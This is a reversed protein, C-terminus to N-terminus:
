PFVHVIYLKNLISTYCYGLLLIIEDFGSPSYKFDYQFDCEFHTDERFISSESPCILLKKQAAASSKARKMQERKVCTM